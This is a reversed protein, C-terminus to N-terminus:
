KEYSITFVKEVPMKFYGAIKLALLISPTYNGKELAIITQRSVSVKNALDEQTAGLQMRLKGVENKIHESM